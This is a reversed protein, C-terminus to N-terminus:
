RPLRVIEEDSIALDGQIIRKEKQAEEIETALYISILSVVSLFHDRTSAPQGTHDIVNRFLKFNKCKDAISQNSFDIAQLEHACDNRIDRIITIDDFLASGILGLCYAMSIKSSFSGLPQNFDFLKGVKRKDDVLFNMLLQELQIELFVAGVIVCARDNSKNLEAIWTSPYQLQDRKKQSDKKSM